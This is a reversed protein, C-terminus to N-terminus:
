FWWCWGFDMFQDHNMRCIGLDKVTLFGWGRGSRCGAFLDLVRVSRDEFLHMSTVQLRQKPGVFITVFVLFFPSKEHSEDRHNKIPHNKMPNWPSLFFCLFNHNFWAVYLNLWGFHPIPILNPTSNHYSLQNLNLLNVFQLIELM